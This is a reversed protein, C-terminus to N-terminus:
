RNKGRSKIEKQPMIQDGYQVGSTGGNENNSHEEAKPMLDVRSNSNHKKLEFNEQQDKESEGKMEGVKDCVRLSHDGYLDDIANPECGASQIGLGDIRFVWKGPSGVNSESLLVRGIDKTGSGKIVAYHIGDGRDFGACAWDGQIPNAKKNTRWFVSGLFAFITKEVDSENPVKQALRFHRPLFLRQKKSKPCVGPVDMFICDFEGIVFKLLGSKVNM